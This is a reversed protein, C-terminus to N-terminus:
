KGAGFYLKRTEYDITLPKQGLVGLGLMGDLRFGDSTETQEFYGFASQADKAVLGKGLSFEPVVVMAAQDSRLAPAGIGAHQYALQTATMDAGRMGTNLLYLGEADRLKGIVYMFHTEHLYFPVAEGRRRANREAECKKGPAVLELTKGALDLTVVFDSLVNVGLVVKAKDSLEGSMEKMARDDFVDLPVNDIQVAGIRLSKAQAHGINPVGKPLEGMSRVAIDNEKAFTEPIIVDSAGTDVIAGVKKGALEVAVVALPETTLLPVKTVCGPSTVHLPKGAFSRYRGAIVPNGAQDLDKALRAFDRSRYDIWARQVAVVEDRVGARAARALTKSAAADDGQLVQVRALIWMAEPEKADLALTAEAATKAEEFRAAAFAARAWDLQAGSDKASSKAKAAAAELAALWHDAVPDPVPLEPMAFKAKDIKAHDVRQTHFEVIQQKDGLENIVKIAYAIKVGDVDRYDDYVIIQRQREAGEGEEVIEERLLGTQRDFWMTKPTVDKDDMAWRVGDLVAPKGAFDETRSRALSTEVGRRDVDFYWHLVADEKTVLLEEESELRLPGGGQLQWGTKGDYGKEEVLDGLVTRRYLQGGATTSLVFSGTTDEAMCSGDDTDCGEEARFIMRAEVTRADLKRLAAEGGIAEVYHELVEGATSPAPREAGPEEPLDPPLKLCAPTAGFGVLLLPLLRLRTV